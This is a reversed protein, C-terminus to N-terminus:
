EKRIIPLQQEKKILTDDNTIISYLKTANLEIENIIKTENDQKKLEKTGSFIINKIEKNLTNLYDKGKSSMGLIRLYPHYKYPADINLLNYLIQRNIRNITYRKNKLSQQLSNLSSFDGNKIIYNNIGEQNLNNNNAIQYQYKILNIFNNTAKNYDILCNYSEKPLTNEFPLNNSLASRIATASAIDNNITQDHYDSNIRKIIHSNINLNNQKITKLYQIALTVNPKNFLEIEKDSLYNTLVKAYNNKYSMDFSKNVELDRLFSNSTIIDVYKNIAMQNDIESGFALDTIGFLALNRISADCFFDASQTSQSFPLELVVDIGNNLLVNTKDFKNLLSIEGRMTFSTSAIAVILDPNLQKKCENIFYLHGNHFPNAEIVIGLIKM